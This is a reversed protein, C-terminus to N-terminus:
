PGVIMRVSNNAAWLGSILVNYLLILTVAAYQQHQFMIWTCEVDPMADLTGARVAAVAAAYTCTDGYGHDSFVDCEGAVAQDAEGCKACREAVVYCTTPNLRLVYCITPNLRLDSEVITGPVLTCHGVAPIVDAVDDKDYTCDIASLASKTLGVTLAVM